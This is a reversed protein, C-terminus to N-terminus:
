EVFTIGFRSVHSSLRSIVSAALENRIRFIPKEKTHDAPDVSKLLKFDFIILYNNGGVNVIPTPYLNDGSALEDAYLEPIMIGPLLRYKLWKNQAYDCIPSVELEIFIFKKLEDNSLIIEGKKNIANTNKGPKDKYYNRIIKKRRAWHTVKKNYVNGPQVHDPVNIDILLRTNISPKISAYDNLFNELRVKEDTNRGLSNLKSFDKTGAHTLHTGDIYLGYKNTKIRWDLKYEIDDITQFYCINNKNFKINQSFGSTDQCYNEAVDLFTSNMTKIANKLIDSHNATGINQGLQARAMRFISTKLNNPWHSDRAHLSAYNEVTQGSAKNIFSEWITFFQFSEAAGTLKKNLEESINGVADSKSEYTSPVRLENEIVNKIEALDDESFRTSLAGDIENILEDKQSSDMHQEFYSSKNLRIVALPKATDLQAALQSEVEDADNKAITSWLVLLYPGNGKSILRELLRLINAAYSTPTSPGFLQIDFFALRVKQLPTSPLGEDLGDYYVCSVGKSSFLKILPLAEETKDDVILVSGDNPLYFGTM